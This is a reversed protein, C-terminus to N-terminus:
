VIYKGGEALTLECSSVLRNTLAREINLKDSQTYFMMAKEPSSGGLIKRQILREKLISEEANIFISYDCFSHLERWGTEDLLLWNGEILVIDEKVWIADRVVDHLNRDYIPWGIDNNRLLKISDTLSQLDFTEPSGKVQRMPITEGDIIVSHKEIYEQPYHFGDIGVSQMKVADMNTESLYALFLSLTTKGAGPPAALYVILRDKKAKQMDSLAKVLPIFLKKTDEKLYHANVDFGNVNLKINIYSMLM